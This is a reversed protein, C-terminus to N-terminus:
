EAAAAAPHTIPGLCSNEQAVGCSGEANVDECHHCLEGRADPGGCGSCGGYSGYGYSGCPKEQEEQEKIFEMTINPYLSSGHAIHWLYDWPHDMQIHPGSMNNDKLQRQTTKSNQLQFLKFNKFLEPALYKL